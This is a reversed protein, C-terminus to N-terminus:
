APIRAVGPFARTPLPATGFRLKCDSLKKGCRDGAATTPRGNADFYDDGAYPCTAETYDFSTGTWIRYRHTCANRLIPRRPLYVGQQDTAAALEWEIVVKTYLRKRDIRYIDLPFCATSDALPQGDLYRRFTRIRTVTAGLLDGFAIVAAGFALSVNAVRLIPTPLPGRGSWEWGETEVPMPLYDNGGRRVPGTEFASSTFRTIDGGLSRADLEYLEVYDDLEFGQVLATLGVPQSSAAFLTVDDLTISATGSIRIGGAANATVDALNISALGRIAVTATASAVVDAITIAVVGTVPANGGSALVAVDALTIDAAGQVKITGGAVSTVDALTISVSGAVKVAGAASPSVDALTVALAGAVKVAGATSATVAALTIAVVGSITSPAGSDGLPLEGLAGFGAM